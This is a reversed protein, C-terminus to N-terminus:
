AHPCSSEIPPRSRAAVLQRDVFRQDVSRVIRQETEVRRHADLQPVAVGLPDETPVRLADDSLGSVSQERAVDSREEVSHEAALTDVVDLGLDLALVAHRDRDGQRQM